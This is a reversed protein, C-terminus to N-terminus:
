YECGVWPFYIVVECLSSSSLMVCVIISILMFLSIYRVFTHTASILILLRSPLSEHWHCTMSEWHRIHTNNSQLLTRCLRTHVATPTRGKKGKHHGTVLALALIVVAALWNDVRWLEECSRQRASSLHCSDQSSHHVIEKKFLYIIQGPDKLNSYAPESYSDYRM